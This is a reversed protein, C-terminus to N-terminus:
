ATRHADRLPDLFAATEPLCKILMNDNRWSKECEQELNELLKICLM